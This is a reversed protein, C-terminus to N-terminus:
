LGYKTTLYDEISDRVTTSIAADYILLEAIDGGLSSGVDLGSQTNLIRASTSSVSAAFGNVRVEAGSVNGTTETVTLLV